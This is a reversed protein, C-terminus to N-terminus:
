LVCECTSHIAAPTKSAPLRQKRSSDMCGELMVIPTVRGHFGVSFGISIEVSFGTYTM